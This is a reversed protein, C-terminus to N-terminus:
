KRKFDRGTIYEYIDQSKNEVKFFEYDGVRKLINASRSENIHMSTNNEYTADNKGMFMFQNILKKWTIPTYIISTPGGVKGTLRKALDNGEN